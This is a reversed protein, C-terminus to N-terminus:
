IFNRGRKKSRTGTMVPEVTITAAMNPVHVRLANYLKILTLEQNKKLENATSIDLGVNDKYAMGGQTYQPWHPVDQLHLVFQVFCLADLTYYRSGYEHFEERLRCICRDVGTPVELRTIISCLVQAYHAANHWSPANMPLPRVARFKDYWFGIGASDMLITKFPLQLGSFPHSERFQHGYLLFEPVIMLAEGQQMRRCEEISNKCKDISHENVSQHELNLVWVMRETTINKTRLIPCVNRISYRVTAMISDSKLINEKMNIPFCGFRVIIIPKEEEVVDVPVIDDYLESITLPQRFKTCLNHQHAFGGFVATYVKCTIHLTMMQVNYVFEVRDETSFGIRGFEYGAFTLSRGSCRSAWSYDFGLWESLAPIEGAGLLKMELTKYKRKTPTNDVVYNAVKKIDLKKVEKYDTTTTLIENFLRIMISKSCAVSGIASLRGNGFRTTALDRFIMNKWLIRFRYFELATSQFGPDRSNVMDFDGRFICRLNEDIDFSKNENDVCHRIAFIDTMGPYFLATDTEFLQADLILIEHVVLEDLNLVCEKFGMELTLFQIGRDLPLAEKGEPLEDGRRFHFVKACNAEVSQVLALKDGDYRFCDNVQVM